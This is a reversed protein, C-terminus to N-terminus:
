IKDLCYELYERSRNIAATVEPATPLIPIGRPVPHMFISTYGKYKIQKLAALVPAFDLQGYGPMQKMELAKPLKKMCGKGHEWAYFHVLKPGLRRIIQSILNTDRALHYPALAIGVPESATFDRLWYMADPHTILSRSHNEVAITVKNQQAAEIHPKMQEAFKKVAEKLEPGKKDSPGRAGTVIIRTGFRRAVKMEDQLGFPGLDYRTLIGLKVQHKQLMKEFTEYGMEEMQERQNAHRRPWIDIHTASTKEIEPLIETLSLNGYMSSAVIYNLSFRSTKPKNDAFAPRGLLAGSFTGSVLIKLFRRRNLKPM